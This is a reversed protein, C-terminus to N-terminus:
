GGIPRMPTTTEIYIAADYQLPLSGVVGPAGNVGAANYRTPTSLWQPL